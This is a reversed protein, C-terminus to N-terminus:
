SNCVTFTKTAAASRRQPRYARACGRLGVAAAQGSGRSTACLHAYHHARPPAGAAMSAQTRRAQAAEAVAAFLPVPALPCQQRGSRAHQPRLRQHSRDLSSLCRARWGGAAGRGGATAMWASQRRARPPAAHPWTAPAHERQPAVAAGQQTVQREHQPTSLPPTSAPSSHSSTVTLHQTGQQSTQWTHQPLAIQEELLLLRPGPKRAACPTGRSRRSKSVRLCTALRPACGVHPWAQPSRVRGSPGAFCRAKLCRLLDRSLRGRRAPLSPQRARSWRRTGLSCPRPVAWGCAGATLRAAQVPFKLAGELWVPHHRCPPPTPIM